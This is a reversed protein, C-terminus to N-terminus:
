SSLRGLEQKIETLEKNANYSFWICRFAFFLSACCAVLLIIEIFKVYYIQEAWGLLMALMCLFSFAYVCAWLGKNTYYAINGSVRKEQNLYFERDLPSM